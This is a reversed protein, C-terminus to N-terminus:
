VVVRSHTWKQAAWFIHLDVHFLLELLIMVKEQIFLELFPLRLLSVNMGKRWTWQSVAQGRVGTTSLYAVGWHPTAQHLAPSLLSLTLFQLM